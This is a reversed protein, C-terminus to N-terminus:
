RSNLIHPWRGSNLERIYIIELEPCMKLLRVLKGRWRLMSQDLFYFHCQVPRPPYEHPRAPYEACAFCVQQASHECLTSSVLKPVFLISETRQEDGAPLYKPCFEKKWQEGGGPSPPVKRQDQCM